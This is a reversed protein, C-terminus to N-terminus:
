VVQRAEEDGPWLNNPTASAERIGDYFAAFKINYSKATPGNTRSKVFEANSSFGAPPDAGFLDTADMVTKGARLSGQPIIGKGVSSFPLGATLRPRL